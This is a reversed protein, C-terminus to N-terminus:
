DILGNDRLWMKILEASIAEKLGSAPGVYAFLLKSMRKFNFILPCM